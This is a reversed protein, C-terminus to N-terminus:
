ALALFGHSAGRAEGQQRPPNRSPPVLALEIDAYDTMPLTLMLVETAGPGALFPPYINM